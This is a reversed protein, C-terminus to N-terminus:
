RAHQLWHGRRGSGRWDGNCQIGQGGLEGQGSAGLGSRLGRVADSHRQGKLPQVHRQSRGIAVAVEVHGHLGGSAGPHLGAGRAAVVGGGGHHGRLQHVNVGRVRGHLAAAHAGVHAAGAGKDNCDGAAGDGAADPERGVHVTRAQAGQAVAGAQGGGGRQKGGAEGRERGVGWESGGGRSRAAPETRGRGKPRCSTSVRAGKRVM